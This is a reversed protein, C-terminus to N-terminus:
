PMLGLTRYFVVFLADLLVLVFLSIVVTATTRRGVGEAGGSASFGQQCAILAIALGFAASKILGSNVDWLNVAKQTEIMYGQATLDLSTVAVVLGGLIGVVSGLLTLIPAVIVLTIVRPVVLWGFPSLGMTRLADIEESVKMSGIEAAYGAGSRGAIIIATLLPALERTVSLGVLDAVYINAGFRILQSAAQFAMVFGILFNILLVIPVADAGAKDILSPVEKLHASRPRRAIAAVTSAMGGLFVVVSKLGARWELAGRGVQAVLGEARRGRYREESAEGQEGQYLDVLAAVRENAGVLEAEVGRAALETRLEVLLASTAGDAEDVGSLDIALRGRPAKRAEALIASWLRGADRMRLPGEIRLTGEALAIRFGSGPGLANPRPDVPTVM